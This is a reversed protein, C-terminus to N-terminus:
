ADHADFQEKFLHTYLSGQNPKCYGGTDIELAKHKDQILKKVLHLSGAFYVNMETTSDKFNKDSNRLLILVDFTASNHGILITVHNNHQDSNKVQTIFTLFDRLAKDITVSQVPNNRQCLTRVGKISKITM